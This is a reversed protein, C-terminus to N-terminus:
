FEGNEKMEAIKDIIDALEDFYKYSTEPIPFDERLHLNRLGDFLAIPTKDNVKEWIQYYPHGKADRTLNYIFHDSTGKLLAM